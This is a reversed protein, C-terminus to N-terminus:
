IHVMSTTSLEDQYQCWSTLSTSMLLYPYKGSSHNGTYLHQTQRSGRGFCNLQRHSHRKRTECPYETQNNRVCRIRILIQQRTSMFSSVWPLSSSNVTMQHKWFVDKFGHNVEDLDVNSGSPPQFAFSARKVSGENCSSQIEWHRHNMLCLIDMM